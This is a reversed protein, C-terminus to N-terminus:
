RSNYWVIGFFALTKLFNESTELILDHKYILKELM